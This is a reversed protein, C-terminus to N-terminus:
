IILFTKINEKIVSKIIIYIDSNIKRQLLDSHIQKLSLLIRLIGYISDAAIEDSIDTDPLIYDNRFIDRTLYYIDGVVNDMSSIIASPIIDMSQRLNANKIINKIISMTQLYFLQYKLKFNEKRWLKIHSINLELTNFLDLIMLSFRYLSRRIFRNNWDDEVTYFKKKDDLQYDNEIRTLVWMKRAVEEVFDEPFETRISPEIVMRKDLTQSLFDSHLWRIDYYRWHNSEGKYYKYCVRYKKPINWYNEMSYPCDHSHNIKIKIYKKVCRQVLIIKKINVIFHKRLVTPTVPLSKLWKRYRYWKQIQRIYDIYKGYRLKLKMKFQIKVLIDLHRSFYYLIGLFHRAKELDAPKMKTKLKLTKKQYFLLIEEESLFGFSDILEKMIKSQSGNKILKSQDDMKKKSNKSIIKDNDRNFKKWLSIPLTCSKIDTINDGIDLIIGNYLQISTNAKDHLSCFCNGNSYNRCRKITAKQVAMCKYIHM